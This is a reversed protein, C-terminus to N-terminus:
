DRACSSSIPVSANSSGAGYSSVIASVVTAVLTTIVTAILTTIIATILTTILTAIITAILTTILASVLVASAVVAVGLGGQGEIRGDNGLSEVIIALALRSRALNGRQCRRVVEDVEALSNVKGDGVAFLDLATGAVRSRHTGDRGFGVHGCGLEDERRVTSRNSGICGERDLHLDAIKLSPVKDVSLLIVKRSGLLEISLTDDSSVRVDDDLLEIGEVRSLDEVRSYKSEEFAQVTGCLTSDQSSINGISKRSTDVLEGRDVGSSVM